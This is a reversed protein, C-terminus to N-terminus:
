ETLEGEKIEIENTGRENRGYGCMCVSVRLCVRM